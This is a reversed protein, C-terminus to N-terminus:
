VQLVTFSFYTPPRRRRTMFRLALAPFSALAFYFSISPFIIKWCHAYTRNQKASWDENWNEQKRERESACEKQKEYKVKNACFTNLFATWQINPQFFSECVCACPSATHRQRYRTSITATTTSAKLMYIWIWKFRKGAFESLENWNKDPKSCM